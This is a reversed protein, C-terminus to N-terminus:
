DNSLNESNVIRILEVAEPYILIPIRNRNIYYMRKFGGYNNCLYDVLEVFKENSVGVMIPQIRHDPHGNNIYNVQSLIHEALDDQMATYDGFLPVESIDIPNASQNEIVFKYM